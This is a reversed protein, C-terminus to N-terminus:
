AAAVAAWALFLKNEYAFNGAGYIIDAPQWTLHTLAKGQRIDLNNNEKTVRRWEGVVRFIHFIQKRGIQKRRTSWTQMIIWKWESAIHVYSIKMIVVSSLKQPFLKYCNEEWGSDGANVVIPIKDDNLGVSFNQRRTVGEDNRHTRYYCLRRMRDLPRANIVSVM